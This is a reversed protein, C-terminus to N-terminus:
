QKENFVGRLPEIITLSTSGYNKQKCVYSSLFKENFTFGKRHELIFTFFLSLIGSEELMKLLNIKGDQKPFWIDTQDYPPDAFILNIGELGQPPNKILRLIDGKFVNSKQEFGLQKINQDLYKLCINNKEIFWCFEAGRSLSELGLNGSGCFIDMTRAGSLKDGLISFLAEKVRDSTPRIKNTQAPVKIRQSKASGAIIRVMFILSLKIKQNKEFM